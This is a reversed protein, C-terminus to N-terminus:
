MFPTEILEKNWLVIMNGRRYTMTPEKDIAHMRPHPHRQM